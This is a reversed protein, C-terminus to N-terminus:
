TRYHDSFLRRELSDNVYTFIRKCIDSPSSLFGYQSTQLEDYVYTGPWGLEEVFRERPIKYLELGNCILPQSRAKSEDYNYPSTHLLM